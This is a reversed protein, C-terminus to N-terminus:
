YCLKCIVLKLHVVLWLLNQISKLNTLKNILENRWVVLIACYKEIQNYVALKFPKATKKLILTGPSFGPVKPITTSASLWYM